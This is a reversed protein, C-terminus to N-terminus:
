KSKHTNEQRPKNFDHLTVTLDRKGAEGNLRAFMVINSGNLGLALSGKNYRYNKFNEVIVNIDQKAYDAIKQLWEKSNIVLFGGEPYAKFNGTLAAINSGEGSVSIYGDVRGTLDIKDTLKLDQVIEQLEAGKFDIVASFQLGKSLDININATVAGGAFNSTVKNVLIGKNYVALWGKIEDFKFKDMIVANKVKIKGIGGRLIAPLSLRFTVKEVSLYKQGNKIISLNKYLTIPFLFPTIILFILFLFFLSKVISKNKM